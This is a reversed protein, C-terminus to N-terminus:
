TQIRLYDAYDTDRNFEWLIGGSTWTSDTTTLTQGLQTGTDDLIRADIGGGPLWDIVPEYWTGTTYTVDTGDFATYAGGSVQYLQFRNQQPRVRVLYHNDTDQVGFGFDVLGDTLADFIVNFRITDGASPYAPLGSTSLLEGPFGTTAELGATGDYAHTTGATYDATAGTYESLDTDEFSDVVTTTVDPTGIAYRASQGMAYLTNNVTDEVLLGPRYATDAPPGDATAYGDVWVQPSAASVPIDSDRAIVRGAADLGTFDHSGFECGEVIVTANNAPFFGSTGANVATCNRLTVTTEIGNSRPTFGSHSPNFVRCNTLTHTGNAVWFGQNDTPAVARCNTIAFQSSPPGHTQFAFGGGTTDTTNIAWCNTYTNTVRTSADTTGRDNFGWSTQSDRAVCNRVHVRTGWGATDAGNHFNSAYNGALVSNSLTADRVEFFNIGYRGSNLARVRDVQIDEVQGGAQIVVRYPENTGDYQTQNHGDYTGGTVRCHSAQVELLDTDGTTDFYADRADVHVWPSAIVWESPLSFTGRATLVAHREATARAPLAAVAADLVTVPNTGTEIVSGDAAATATYASASADGTVVVNAAGTPTLSEYTTNTPDTLGRAITLNDFTDNHDDSAM